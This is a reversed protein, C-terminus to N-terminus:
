VLGLKIARLSMEVRCTSNLDKSIDHIYNTVDQASVGIVDAIVSDSKGLVMWKLIALQRRTLNIKPGSM